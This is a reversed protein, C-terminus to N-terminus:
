CGPYDNFLGFLSSGVAPCGMAGLGYHNLRWRAQADINRHQDNLVVVPGEQDFRHGFEHLLTRALSSPNSRHDKFGMNISTWYTGTQPGGLHREWFTRGAEESDLDNNVRIEQNRWGGPIASGVFQTAVRLTSADLDNGDVKAGNGSINQHDHTAIFGGYARSFQSIQGSTLDKDKFDGDGNGDVGVCADILRGTVPACVIATGTPDRGDAPDNGVYAYLNVQDKYGIPDTQLFRGLM